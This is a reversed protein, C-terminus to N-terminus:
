STPCLSPRGPANADSNFKSQEWNWRRLPFASVSDVGLITANRHHSCETSAVKVAAGLLDTEEADSGIIREYRLCAPRLFVGGKAM